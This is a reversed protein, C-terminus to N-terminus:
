AQDGGAWGQGAGEPLCFLRGHPFSSQLHEREEEQEDEEGGEEQAVRVGHQGGGPEGLLHDVLERLVKLLEHLIGVPGTGTSAADPM